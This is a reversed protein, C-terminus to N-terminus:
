FYYAHSADVLYDQSDCYIICFYALCNFLDFLFINANNIDAFVGELLNLGISYNRIFWCIPSITDQYFMYIEQNFKQMGDFIEVQM